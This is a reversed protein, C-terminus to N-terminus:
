QAVERTFRIFPSSSPGMPVTLPERVFGLWRMWRASVTNREDVYGILVPFHAQMMAVCEGCRRLFLPAHSNLARTGIMWPRGISPSLAGGPIVGFMCVPIGDITGTWAERSDSLSRKLVDEVSRTHAAWLEVADAPRINAAIAPIHDASAAIIAPIM